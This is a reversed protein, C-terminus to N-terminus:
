YAPYGPSRSHFSRRAVRPHSSQQCASGALAMMAGFPGLIDAWPFCGGAARLAKGDTTRKCWARGRNRLGPNRISLFVALGSLACCIPVPCVGDRLGSCDVHTVFASCCPFAGNNTGRQADRRSVAVNSRPSQRAREPSIVNIPRTVWPSTIARPARSSTQASM